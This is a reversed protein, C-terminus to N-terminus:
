IVLLKKRKSLREIEDKLVTENSKNIAIINKYARLKDELEERNIKLSEETAEDLVGENEEIESMLRFYEDQIDFLSKSM